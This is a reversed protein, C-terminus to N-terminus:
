VTTEGRSRPCSNRSRSPLVRRGNVLGMRAESVYVVRRSAAVSWDRARKVSVSPAAYEGLLSCQRAYLSISLGVLFVTTKFLFIGAWCPVCDDQLSISGGLLSCLRRSPFYVRGVPFVTMKFPFLGAWCPVCDDQLSISGGFLSCLRRSPFYVRRVPFVTM